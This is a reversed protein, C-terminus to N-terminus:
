PKVCIKSKKTNATLWDRHYKCYKEPSVVRLTAFDQQHGVPSHHGASRPNLALLENKLTNIQM